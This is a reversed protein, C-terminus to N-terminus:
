DNCSSRQFLAESIMTLLTSWFMIGAVCLLITTLVSSGGMDRGLLISTPSLFPLVRQLLFFQAVRLVVFPVLCIMEAKACLMAVPVACFVCFQGYLFVLLLRLGYYIWATKETLLLGGIVSEELGLMNGGILPAGGFMVAALVALLWGFALAAGGALAASISVDMVFRMKGTRPLSMSRWSRQMANSLYHSVSLIAAMPALPIFTGVDMSTVLQYAVSMGDRFGDGLMGQFMAAFSVGAGVWWAPSAIICRIQKCIYNM